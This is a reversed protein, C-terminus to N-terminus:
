RMQMLEWLSAMAPSEMVKTLRQYRSLLEDPGNFDIRLSYTTGEFYSPPELRIGKGLHLSKIAQGVRTEVDV